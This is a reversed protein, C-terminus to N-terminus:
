RCCENVANGIAEAVKQRFTASSLRLADDSNSLFGVEVLVSPMDTNDLVYLTRPLIGERSKGVVSELERLVAGALRRSESCDRTYFVMPGKRWSDTSYNMHISIFVDGRLYNAINARAWLDRKHRSRSYPALLELSTDIERTLYAAFGSRELTDKLRLAIDLNLDKELMSGRSTGGDIGGHGPDIIVVIREPIDSTLFTALSRWPLYVAAAIVLATILAFPVVLRRPNIVYIRTRRIVM